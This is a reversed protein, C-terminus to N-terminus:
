VWVFKDCIMVFEECIMVLERRKSVENKIWHDKAKKTPWTVPQQHVHNTRHIRYGAHLRVPVEQPQSTLSISPSFSRIDGLFPAMEFPFYNTNWAGNKQPFMNTKPPTPGIIM